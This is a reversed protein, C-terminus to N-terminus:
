RRMDAPSPRPGFISTGVRVITAGEAIAAEYDGSMGMSLQPLELKAGLARLTAFWPRPDAALPPVAMLGEVRLGAARARDALAPVADPDCGGKQPEDGVNVQLLVRAAPARKALEAILADDDVSQWLTVAGALSRVKNRQLRGVFHWEIDDRRLADVHALLEQARNEGFARQGADLADAIREPVVNKSVAVLQVDHPDRGAHKAASAIREQVAAIRTAVETV